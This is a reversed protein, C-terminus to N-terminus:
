PELGSTKVPMSAKREPVDLEARRIRIIVDIM